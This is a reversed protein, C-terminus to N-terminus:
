QNSQYSMQALDCVFGMQPVFYPGFAYYLLAGVSIAQTLQRIWVGGEEEGALQTKKKKFISLGGGCEDSNDDQNEEPLTLRTARINKFFSKEAALPFGVWVFFLRDEM